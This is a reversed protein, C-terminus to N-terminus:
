FRRIYCGLSRGNSYKLPKELRIRDLNEELFRKKSKEFIRSETMGGAYLVKYGGKSSDKKILTVHPTKLANFKKVLIQKEDKIIPVKFTKTYYELISEKKNKTIKDTIVAYFSIKKNKDALTNLHEGHSRSCPCESSLFVLVKLESQDRDFDEPNLLAFSISSFFIFSGIFLSKLFGM